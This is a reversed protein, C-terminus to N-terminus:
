PLILVLRLSDCSSLTALGRSRRGLTAQNLRVCFSDALRSQPECQITVRNILPVEGDRGLDYAARGTTARVRRRGTQVREATTFVRNGSEESQREGEAKTRVSELM